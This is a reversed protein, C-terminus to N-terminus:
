RKATDVQLNLGSFDALVRISMCAKGGELLPPFLSGTLQFAAIKQSGFHFGSGSRYRM